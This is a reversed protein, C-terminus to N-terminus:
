KVGGLCSEVFALFAADQLTKAKNWIALTVPLSFFWRIDDHLKEPPTLMGVQIAEYCGSLHIILLNVFLHEKITPPSVNVDARPDLIRSLEPDTFLQNWIERHQQAINVRNAVRRANEERKFSVATYIFSAIIGFTQVLDFWHQEVAHAVEM